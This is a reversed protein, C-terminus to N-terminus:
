DEEEGLFTIKMRRGGCFPFKVSGSCFREAELNTRRRPKKKEEKKKFAM